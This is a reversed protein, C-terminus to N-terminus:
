IHGHRKGDVSKYVGDGVSINERVETSGTGVYIVSKDSPTVTIEGIPGVNLSGDTINSWSEGANTTEWVGSGIGMLYTEMREPYGTM